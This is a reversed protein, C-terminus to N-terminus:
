VGAEVLLAELRSLAADRDFEADPATKRALAAKVRRLAEGELEPVAEAVAIRTELPQNCHMVVDCGAALSRRAREAHSGSLAQMDIADSTLVGDFGLEGRIIEGIVTPSQTAPRYADISRYVVHATMGWPVDALAQFPKFDAGRLTELDVEAVPLADHPDVGVRGHGPLHKIMPQVGGAELGQAYARGCSAVTEPEEGFARDGIVDHMGEVCLDLCPACDVDVGVSAMDAALLRGALRAAEEGAMGLRYPAIGQWWHPARLRAIRGGEQDITVPADSRGVTDRFQSTLENLQQPNEINRAFVIIGLPDYDRLFSREAEDLVPGALDTILARAM